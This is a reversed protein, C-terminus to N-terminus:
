PAPDPPTLPPEFFVRKSREFTKVTLVSLKEGLEVRLPYTPTSPIHDGYSGQHLVLALQAGKEVVADLPEMLIRIELPQGPTVVAATEGGQAFRLDTQGWGLLDSGRDDIAYLWASLHGGPGSPTVTAKLEPLGAFRFESKFTDTYFFACQPCREPSPGFDVGLVSRLPDVAVVAAGDEAKGTTLAGDASLAFRVPKADRPPWSSDRRWGLESDQVEVRPGIDAKKDGKLWYDFWELLIDAFDWRVIKPNLSSSDPWAHHWQGLLHKVFFGKKELRNIWPYQHGPDVNWDQLGQILFISGKYNKEVGPRSNREAWFGLPDREGVFASHISAYFGKFSEPCVIGKVSHEASRGNLVNYELFGYEYYLANLLLPGRFEPVGNRFMLHYIDNVGSIPVITKLFRNGQSAVEWPTSGDYSVGIMGVRGNSWKQRGLYRVAQDLDAREANGMLDMCGGANSTGRIPVFAVAYGHPVFNETLRAECRRFDDAQQLGVELYPSAFVIVPVKMKKPVKPRVIGIQINEGDLESDLEVLEPKGFDYPGEKTTRAYRAPPNSACLSEQGDAYGPGYPQPADPRVGSQAPLSSLLLLVGVAGVLIHRRGM